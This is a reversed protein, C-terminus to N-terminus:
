RDLTEDARIQDMEMASKEMRQAIESVALRKQLLQSEYM